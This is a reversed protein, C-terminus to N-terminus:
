LSAPGRSPSLNPSYAGRMPSRIVCLSHGSLADRSCAALYWARPSLWGHACAPGCLGHPLGGWSPEEECPQELRPWHQVHTETPTVSATSWGRAARQVCPFGKVQSCGHMDGSQGAVGQHSCRLIGSMVVCSMACLLCRSHSHCPVVPAVVRGVARGEPAALRSLLQFLWRLDGHCHPKTLVEHDPHQGELQALPWCVARSAQGAFRQCGPFM